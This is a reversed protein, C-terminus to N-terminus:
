ESWKYRSWAAWDLENHSLPYIVCQTIKNLLELVFPLLDFFTLSNIILFLQQTSIIFYALVQHVICCDRGCYYDNKFLIIGCCLYISINM